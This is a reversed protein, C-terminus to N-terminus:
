RCQRLCLVRHRTVPRTLVRRERVPQRVVLLGRGPIRLDGLDIPTVMVLCQGYGLLVALERLLDLGPNGYRAPDTLAFLVAFSQLSSQSVEIAAFTSAPVHPAPAPEAMGCPTM